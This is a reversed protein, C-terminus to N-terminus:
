DTREFNRLDQAYTVMFPSDIIIENVLHGYGFIKDLLVKVPAKISGNVKVALFGDDALIELCITLFSAKEMWFDNDTTSITNVKDSLQDASILGVFQPRIQINALNYWNSFDYFILRPQKMGSKEILSLVKTMSGQIIIRSPTDGLLTEFEESDRPIFKAPM